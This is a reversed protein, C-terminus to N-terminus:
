LTPPGKIRLSLIYAIVSWRQAPTLAAEYSIMPTGNLGTVLTRYLDEPRDGSRPHPQRLDSPAVLQGWADRLGQAVPGKGDAKAGHCTACAAEFLMRGEALRAPPVVPGTLWNPAAELRVPEAYNEAKRWRRSFSKLYEIVAAVDEEQLTAFMGMATGSLGHTITRRLDADAPLKGWPTSRFKFLGERFSRPRPTLGPSLEGKGDGRSGHCLVCNREYVERGQYFRNFDPIYVSLTEGARAM